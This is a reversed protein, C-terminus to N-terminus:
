RERFFYGGATTTTQNSIRARVRGKRLRMRMALPLAGGGVFLLLLLLYVVQSVSARLPCCLGRLIPGRGRCCLVFTSVTACYFNAYFRTQENDLTECVLAGSASARRSARGALKMQVRSRRIVTLLPLKAAPACVRVSALMRFSHCDSHPPVRVCFAPSIGGNM